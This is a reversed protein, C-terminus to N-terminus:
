SQDVLIVPARRPRTVLSGILPPPRMSPYRERHTEATPMGVMHETCLAHGDVVNHVCRSSGGEGWWCQEALHEACHHDSVANKTCRNSSIGANWWCQELQAM